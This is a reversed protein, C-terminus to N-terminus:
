GMSENRSAAPPFAHLGNLVPMPASGPCWSCRLGLVLSGVTAQPHRNISRLDIACSTRCGPCFVDLWPMNALIATSITPSWLAGKGAAAVANWREVVRAAEERAAEEAARERMYLALRETRPPDHEPM